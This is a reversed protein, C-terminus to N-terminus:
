PPGGPYPGRLYQSCASSIFRKDSASWVNYRYLGLISMPWPLDNVVRVVNYLAQNQRDNLIDASDADLTFSHIAYQIYLGPQPFLFTAVVLRSICSVLVDNALRTSDQSTKNIVFSDTVM